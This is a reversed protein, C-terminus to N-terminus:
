YYQRRREARLSDSGLDACLKSSTLKKKVKKQAKRSNLTKDKTKQKSFLASALVFTKVPGKYIQYAASQRKGIRTTEM